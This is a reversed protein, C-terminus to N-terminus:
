IAKKLDRALQARERGCARCIRQGKTPHVYLNDGDYTHGAPCHSKKAHVASPGEGRLLNERV